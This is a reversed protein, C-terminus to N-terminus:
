EVVLNSSGFYEDLIRDYMEWALDDDFIKILKAYGRESLLYINKSANLSGQTIFGSNKLIIAFKSDKWDIIDVNDKFRNRNENILKNVNFLERNHLVAIDKALMARKGEGFGGAICPIEIGCVKTTGKLM